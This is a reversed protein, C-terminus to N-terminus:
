LRGLSFDRKTDIEAVVAHFPKLNFSPMYFFISILIKHSKFFNM